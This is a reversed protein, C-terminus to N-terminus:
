NVRPEELTARVRRGCHSRGLVEVQQHTMRVRMKARLRQRECEASVSLVLDGDSVEASSRRAHTTLVRWALATGPFARCLLAEVFTPRDAGRECGCPLHAVQREAGVSM